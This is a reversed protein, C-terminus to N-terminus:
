WARSDPVGIWQSGEAVSQQSVLGPLTMDLAEHLGIPPPEHNRIARVFDAVEMYDGGWHGSKLAAEPPYLWEEPLFEEEFESLPHWQNPDDHRDQLWIKHSDGAGRPAEYCGKTGQVSYYAMQHPRNSLMDLRIVALGGNSLRCATHTSDEIEYVDGRPDRYHHGSGFCCVSVAREGFWQLLPGLSHTPYTCGNIGTQWKRRWKTVENLEKLEHIYEGEGFYLDGFLGAQAIHRVLVNTRVYCYNEAMMYVASSRKAAEVLAKCEEISVAAPVESLVHIDRELAAIAQPAHFPMPTGVVLVNIDAEDLMRDLDTYVQRVDNEAAARRAGDENIDCVATVRVDEHANCAAFFSRGRGAAGVIGIRLSPEM